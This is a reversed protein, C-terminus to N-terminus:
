VAGRAALTPALALGHDREFEDSLTMLFSSIASHAELKTVSPPEWNAWCSNVLYLSAANLSLSLLSQEEEAMSAYYFDKGVNAEVLLQWRFCTGACELILADEIFLFERGSFAVSLTGTTEAILRYGTLDGWPRDVSYTIDM